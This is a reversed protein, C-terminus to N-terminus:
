IQNNYWKLLSEKGEKVLVENLDVLHPLKLCIKYPDFFQTLRGKLSEASENGVGNADNNLAIIIKKPSLKLLTKLQFTSLNIGFLVLSGKVGIEELSLADGISEVLIIEKNDKIHSYNWYWPYCFQSKNGLIKWKVKQKETVDRGVLGILKEKYNYVPFCYRGDLKTGTNKPILGGQFKELTEYSIGRKRWYSTDNVFKSLYSTSMKKALRIQPKSISLNPDFKHNQLWERAEDITKYNKTIKVLDELSGRKQEVFDIFYGNNFIKLSTPNDGDAYLRRTRWGNGEPYLSYGLNELIEKIEM